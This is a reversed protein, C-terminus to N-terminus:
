QNFTALLPQLGYKCFTFFQHVTQDQIPKCRVCITEFDIQFLELWTTNEEMEIEEIHGVRCDFIIYKSPSSVLILFERKNLQQFFLFPGTSNFKAIVQNLADYVFMQKDVIDIFYLSSKSAFM